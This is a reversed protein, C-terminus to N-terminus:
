KKLFNMLTEWSLVACDIRSPFNKAAAFAYFEQPAQSLEEPQNYAIKLFIECIKRAEEANKGELHQVLVSTSAKCIACGYGHFHVEKMIEGEWDLYIRFHDGCLPNYAELVEGAAEKKQFNLPNKNHELIINQYLQSLDSNM